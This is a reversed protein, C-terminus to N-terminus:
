FPRGRLASTISAETINSGDRFVTIRNAYSDIYISDGARAKGAAPTFITFKGKPRFMLFRLERDKLEDEDNLYDEITKDISDRTHFIIFGKVSNIRYVSDVKGSFRYGLKGVYWKRADNARTVKKRIANFALLMLVLVCATIIMWRKM